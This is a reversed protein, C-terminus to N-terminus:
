AHGHPGTEEEEDDVIIEDLIEKKVLRDGLAQDAEVYIFHAQADVIKILGKRVYRSITRLSDAAAELMESHDLLAKAPEGPFHELACALDEGQKFYFLNLRYEKKM